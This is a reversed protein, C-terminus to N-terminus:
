SAATPARRGARTSLALLGAFAAFEVAWWAGAHHGTQACAGAIAVGAGATLASTRLAWRRRAALGTLTAVVASLFGLSLVASWLPVSADSPTPAFAFLLALATIWAALLGGYSAGAVTPTPSPTRLMAELEDASPAAREGSSPTGARTEVRRMRDETLAM